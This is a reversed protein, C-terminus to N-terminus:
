GTSSTGLCEMSFALGRLGFFSGRTNTFGNKGSFTVSLRTRGILIGRSFLVKVELDFDHSNGLSRLSVFGTDDFFSIEINNSIVESLENSRGSNRGSNDKVVHSESNELSIGIFIHQERGV